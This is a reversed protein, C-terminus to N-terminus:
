LHIHCVFLFLSFFRPFYYYFSAFLLSLLLSFYSSSAAAFLNFHICMNLAYVNIIYNNHNNHPANEVFVFGVTLVCCKFHSRIAFSKHLLNVFFFCVFIYVFWYIYVYIRRRCFPWVGIFHGFNWNVWLRFSRLHFHDCQCSIFHILCFHFFDEKNTTRVSNYLIKKLNIKLNFNVGYLFM